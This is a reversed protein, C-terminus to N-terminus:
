CGVFLFLLTSHSLFACVCVYLFFFAAVKEQEGEREPKAAVDILKKIEAAV